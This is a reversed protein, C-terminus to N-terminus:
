RLIRRVAIRDAPVASVQVRGDRNPAEVVQTPSIALQVHGPGRDDFNSFILDGASIAYRPVPQGLRIQDYTTRPLDVGVGTYAYQVLSSCDFGIDGDQGRSPGGPGGGGYAYPRGRQSLAREVVTDARGNRAAGADGSGGVAGAAFDGRGGDPNQHGTFLSVLQGLGALGAPAAASVPALLTQGWAGLAPAPLGGPSTPATARYGAASTHADAARTAADTDAEELVGRAARLRRALAEVLVRQGAATGSLPALADVDVAAGDIVADVQDRGVGAAAVAAAVEREGARDAVALGAVQTDLQTSEAAWGRAALGAALPAAPGAPLEPRAAVCDGGAVGFSQQAAGLLVGTRRVFAEVSM